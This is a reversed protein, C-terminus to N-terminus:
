KPLANKHGLDGQELGRCEIAALPTNSKPKCSDKSRDVIWFPDAIQSENPSLGNIHQRGTKSAM